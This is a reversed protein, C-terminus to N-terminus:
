VVGFGFFGWGWFGSVEVRSGLVGISELCAQECGFAISAAPM